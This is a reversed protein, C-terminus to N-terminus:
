LIQRGAQRSAKSDLVNCMESTGHLRGAKAARIGRDSPPESAKLLDIAHASDRCDVQAVACAHRTLVAHDVSRCM